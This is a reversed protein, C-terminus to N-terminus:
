LAQYRLFYRNDYCSKLYFRGFEILLKPTDFNIICYIRFYPFETYMELESSVNPSISAEFEDLM